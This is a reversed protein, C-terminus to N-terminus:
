MCTSVNIDGVYIHLCTEPVCCKHRRWIEGVNIDGGYRELM